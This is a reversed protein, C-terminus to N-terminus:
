KFPIVNDNREAPLFAFYDIGFEFQLIRNLMLGQSYTLTEESIDVSLETYIDYAAKIHFIYSLQESNWTVNGYINWKLDKCEVLIDSKDNEKFNFLKSPPENRRWIGILRELDSKM